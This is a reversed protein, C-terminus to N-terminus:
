KEIVKYVPVKVLDGPQLVRGNATLWENRPDYKVNWLYEEFCMRKFQSFRNYKYHDDAIDWLTDGHGVLVDIHTIEYKPEYGWCVVAVLVLACAMLLKKLM